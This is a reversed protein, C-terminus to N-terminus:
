GVLDLQVHLSADAIQEVLDHTAQKRGGHVGSDWQGLVEAVVRIRPERLGTVPDLVDDRGGALCRPGRDGPEPTGERAGALHHCGGECGDHVPLQERADAVVEGGVADVEGADHHADVVEVDGPALVGILALPEQVLEPVQELEVAEVPEQHGLGLQGVEDLGFGADTADELGGDCQLCEAGLIEVRDKVATVLEHGDLVGDGGGRM